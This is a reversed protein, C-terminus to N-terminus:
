YIEREPEKEWVEPEYYRKGPKNKGRKEAATIMNSYDETDYDSPDKGDPAGVRNLYDQIYDNYSM